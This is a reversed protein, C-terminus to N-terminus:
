GSFSFPSRRIGVRDRSPVRETDLRDNRPGLIIVRVPMLQNNERSSMDVTTYPVIRGNSVRFELKDSPAYLRWEDEEKFSDNIEQPSASKGGIRASVAKQQQNLNAPLYNLQNSRGDRSEPGAGNFSRDM